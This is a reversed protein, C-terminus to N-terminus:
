GGVRACKPFELNLEGGYGKWNMGQCVRYVDSALENRWNETVLNFANTGFKGMRNGQDKRKGIM